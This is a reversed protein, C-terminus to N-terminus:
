KSFSNIIDNFKQELNQMNVTLVGDKIMLKRMETQNYQPSFEEFTEDVRNKSQISMQPSSLQMIEYNEKIVDESELVNQYIKLRKNDATSSESLVDQIYYDKDSKLFPFRKAVTGLGVRPVGQLNDSPDGAMSRALAFNRPHIGYKELVANINLVEKQIPRFLLTKEDLLQIFDKDASVIVKQWEAFFSNNKIYSIVDDAEVEPEMFQVIPTQNLYEVVRLQQWLKNNDTDQPTMESTSWNVRLPKRGEKYNKNIARRKRSGGQGDWVVAIMDPKVEGTIKNLINIFTRMGGIPEGNTNKSPDVIYGRIFQNYADVIMLRKM